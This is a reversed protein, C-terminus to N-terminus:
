EFGWGWISSTCSCATGFGCEPCSWKSPSTEQFRALREFGYDKALKRNGDNEREWLLTVVPPHEALYAMGHTALAAGVKEGQHDPHVAMIKYVGIPFDSESIPTRALFDDLDVAVHDAFAERDYQGTVAFGHVDWERNLQAPTTLECVGDGAVYAYLHRDDPEIYNTALEDITPAFDPSLTTESIGVIQAGVVRGSEYEEVRDALHRLGESRSEARTVIDTEADQLRYSTDEAWMRVNQEATTWKAVGDVRARGIRGDRALTGLRDRVTEPPVSLEDSITTTTVPGDAAVVGYIAAEMRNGQEVWRRGTQTGSM